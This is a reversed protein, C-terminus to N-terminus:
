RGFNDKIEVSGKSPNIDRKISVVYVSYGCGYFNSSCPKVNGIFHCTYYKPKGCSLKGDETIYIDMDTRPEQGCLDFLSEEITYKLGAKLQAGFCEKM